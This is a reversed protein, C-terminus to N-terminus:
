DEEDGFTAVLGRILTQEDASSLRAEPHTVLFIPPPMEGERVTEAAEGAENEGQGWRSINFEARGEEVDRQVLWSVPAINSYWPWVTEYSHCDGCATMFLQRTQPSDWTPEAAIPPNEHDRGYPVLQIVIFALLVLGLFPLLLRKLM